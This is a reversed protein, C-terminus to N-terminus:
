NPISKTKGNMLLFAHFPTKKSKHKFEKKEGFMMHM